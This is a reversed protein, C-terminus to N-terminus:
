HDSFEGAWFSQLGKGGFVIRIMGPTLQKSRLVEVVFPRREPTPSPKNMRADYPGVGPSPATDRVETGISLDPTSQRSPVM